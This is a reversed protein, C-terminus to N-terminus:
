KHVQPLSKEDTDPPLAGNPMDVKIDDEQELLSNIASNPDVIAGNPMDVLVISPDTLAGNASPPHDPNTSPPSNQRTLSLLADEIM